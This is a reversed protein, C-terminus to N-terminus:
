ALKASTGTATGYAGGNQNGQKIKSNPSLHLLTYVREDRRCQPRPHRWKQRETKKEKRVPSANNIKMFTNKFNGM